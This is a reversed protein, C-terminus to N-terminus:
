ENIYKRIFYLIDDMHGSKSIRECEILLVINKLKKNM